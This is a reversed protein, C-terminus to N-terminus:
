LCARQRFDAARVTAHADRMQWREGGTGSLIRSRDDDRRSAAPKTRRDVEAALQWFKIGAIGGRDDATEPERTRKKSSFRCGTCATTALGTAQKLFVDDCLLQRTCWPELPKAKHQLVGGRADRFWRGGCDSQRRDCACCNSPSCVSQCRQLVRPSTASWDQLRPDRDLESLAVVSSEFKTVVRTRRLGSQLIKLLASKITTM